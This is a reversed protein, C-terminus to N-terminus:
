HTESKVCTMFVPVCISVEGTRENISWLHPLAENGESSISSFKSDKANPTIGHVINIEGCYSTLQFRSGGSPVTYSASCNLIRDKVRDIVIASYKGVGVLPGQSQGTAMIEYNPIPQANSVTATLGVLLISSNLIGM